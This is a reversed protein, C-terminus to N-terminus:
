HTKKYKPRVPAGDPDFPWNFTLYVSGFVTRKLVFMSSKKRRPTEELYKHYATFEFFKIGPVYRNFEYGGDEDVTLVGSQYMWHHYTTDPNITIVHKVLNWQPDSDHYTYEYTGFIDELKIENRNCSSLIFLSMSLIIIEKRM